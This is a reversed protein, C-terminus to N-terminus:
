LLFTIKLALKLDNVTLNSFYYAFFGEKSRGKKAVLVSLASLLM